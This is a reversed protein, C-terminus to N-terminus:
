GRWVSCVRGEALWCFPKRYTTVLKEGDSTSNSQLLNPLKRKETQAQSLWLTHARQALKYLRIGSDYHVQSAALHREISVQM